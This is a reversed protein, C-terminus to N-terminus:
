RLLPPPVMSDTRGDTITRVKGNTSESRANSLGTAVYAVIGDLHKTITRAVKAFPQSSARTRPGRYGGGAEDARCEASPPSRSHAAFSEKLLYASPLRKNM